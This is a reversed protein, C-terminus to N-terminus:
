GPNLHLASLCLGSESALCGRSFLRMPSSEMPFNTYPSRESGSVRLFTLFNEPEYRIYLEAAADQAATQLDVRLTQGPGVDIQFLQEQQRSLTSALRTDLH